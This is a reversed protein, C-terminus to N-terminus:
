RTAANHVGVQNVGQFMAQWNIASSSAQQAAPQINDNLNANIQHRVNVHAPLASAPATVLIPTINPAITAAAIQSNDAVTSLYSSAAPPMTMHHSMVPTSRLPPNTMATAAPHGADPIGLHLFSAGGKNATNMIHVGDINQSADGLPPCPSPDAPYVQQMELNTFETTDGGDPPLPMGVGQALRIHFRRDLRAIEERAMEVDEPSYKPKESLKSIKSGLCSAGAYKKTIRMPDCHLKEALSARLTKGEPLTLLGSSFYHIFRTAYEEEEVTWKGKRLGTRKSFVASGSGSGSSGSSRSESEDDESNVDSGSKVNCPKDDRIGVPSSNTSESGDRHYRERLQHDNSATTALVQLADCDSTGSASGDVVPCQMVKSIFK